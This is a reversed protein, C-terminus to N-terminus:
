RSEGGTRLPTHTIMKANQKPSNTQDEENQPKGGISGTDRSQGHKVAVSTNALWSFPLNRM